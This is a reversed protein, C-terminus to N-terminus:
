FTCRVRFNCDSISALVIVTAGMRQWGLQKSNFDVSTVPHATLRSKDHHHRCCVSLPQQSLPSHGMALALAKIHSKNMTAVTLSVSCHLEWQYCSALTSHHIGPLEGRSWHQGALQHSFKKVNDQADNCM